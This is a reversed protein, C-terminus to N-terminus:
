SLSVPLAQKALSTSRGAGQVCLSVYLVKCTGSLLGLGEVMRAQLIVPSLEYRSDSFRSLCTALLHLIM